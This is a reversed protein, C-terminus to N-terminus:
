KSLKKNRLFKKQNKWIAIATNRPIIRNLEKGHGVQRTLIKFLNREVGVVRAGCGGGWGGGGPRKRKTMNTIYNDVGNFSEYRTVRTIPWKFWDWKPLFKSQNHISAAINM